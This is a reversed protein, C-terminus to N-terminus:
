FCSLGTLQCLDSFTADRIQRLGAMDKHSVFSSVQISVDFIPTQCMDGDNLLEFFDYHGTLWRSHRKLYVAIYHLCVRWEERTLEFSMRGQTTTQSDHWQVCVLQQWAYGNSVCLLQWLLVHAGPELLPFRRFSVDQEDSGTFINACRSLNWTNKTRKDQCWTPTFASCQSM